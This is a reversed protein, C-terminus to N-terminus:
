SNRIFRKYIQGSPALVPGRDIGHGQKQTKSYGRRRAIEHCRERPVSLLTQGM